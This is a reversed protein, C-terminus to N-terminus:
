ISLYIMLSSSNEFTPCVRFSVALYLTLITWMSCSQLWVRKRLMKNPCYNNDSSTQTSLCISALSSTTSITIQRQQLPSPFNPGCFFLGSPPHVSWSNTFNALVKCSKQVKRSPRFVAYKDQCSDPQWRQLKLHTGELLVIRLVIIARPM